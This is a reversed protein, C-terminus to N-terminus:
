RGAGWIKAGGRLAQMLQSISDRSPMMTQAAKNGLYLASLPAPMRTARLAREASSSSPIPRPSEGKTRVVSNYDDDGAPGLPTLSRGERRYLQGNITGVQGEPIAEAQARTIPAPAKSDPATPTGGGKKVAEMEKRLGKFVEAHKDAYAKALKRWQPSSLDGGKAQFDTALDYMRRSLSIQERMSRMLIANAAPTNEVSPMAALMAAFEKDSQSGKAAQQLPKILQLSVARMVQVNTPNPGLGLKSADIGLTGLVGSISAMLGTGQGTPQAKLAAEFQDLLGETTSATKWGEEIGTWAKRADEIRGEAQKKSLTVRGQHVASQDFIQKLGDQMEKAPDKVSGDAIGNSIRRVLGYYRELDVGQFGYPSRVDRATPAATPAPAAGPIPTPPTTVGPIPPTPTQVPQAVHPSSLPGLPSGLPAPAGEPGAPAGATPPAMPPPSGFMVGPAAAQPPGPPAAPAPQPTPTATPVGPAMPIGSAALFKQAQQERMLRAIEGQGGGFLAQLLKLKMEADEGGRKAQMQLAYQMLTQGQNTAAIPKRGQYADIANGIQPMAGALAAAIFAKKPDGQEQHRAAQAKQAETIFAKYLNYQPSGPKFGFDKIQQEGIEYPSPKAAPTGGGFLWQPLFSPTDGAPSPTPTPAAPTKTAGMMPTMEPGDPEWQGTEWNMGM